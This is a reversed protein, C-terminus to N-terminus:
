ETRTHSSTAVTGHEFATRGAKAGHRARMHHALSLFWLGSIRGAPRAVWRRVEVNRAPFETAFTAGLAAVRRRATPSDPIVLLRGVTKARWGREAAVRPALRRKRDLAMLMSGMDPVVTKVEVVLLTASAGHFALVDVSGREGYVNFSAEAATQWDAATLLRVVADVVAAHDADLLRDFDEGRWDLRVTVRAGLPTAVRELDIPLVRDGLGREIRSVVSRSVGAERALDAQRWGRRLRIARLGRGFRVGDM